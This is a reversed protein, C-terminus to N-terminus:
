FQSSPSGSCMDIDQCVKNSDALLNKLELLVLPGYADVYQDCNDEEDGLLACIDKAYGLVVTQNDPDSIYTEVATVAATCTSCLDNANLVDADCSGIETCVDKPDVNDLMNALEPLYTNVINTCTTQWDAPLDMCLDDIWAQVDAEGSNELWTIGYAVAEQCESCFLENSDSVIQLSDCGLIGCVNDSTVYTDFLSFLENTVVPVLADCDAQFSEPLINCVGEIVTTVSTKDLGDVFSVAANVAVPCIDCLVDNQQENLVLPNSQASVVALSALAAITKM